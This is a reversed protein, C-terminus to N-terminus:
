ESVAQADTEDALDGRGYNSEVNHVHVWDGADIAESAYGISLGYKTITEREPIDTLAVKHGFPIDDTLTVQFTGGEDEIELTEGAEVDRILTGVNDASEVVKIYREPM